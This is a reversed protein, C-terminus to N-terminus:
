RASAPPGCFSSRIKSGPIDAPILAAIYLTYYNNECINKLVLAGSLGDNGSILFDTAELSRFIGSNALHPFITSKKKRAGSCVPVSHTPHPRADVDALCVIWLTEKAQNIQAFISPDVSYLSEQELMHPFGKGPQKM